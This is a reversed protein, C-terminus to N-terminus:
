KKNEQYALLSALGHALDIKPEWGLVKLARQNDPNRISASRPDTESITPHRNLLATSKEIIERLTILTNGSLNFIEYDKRGLAKIIGKAIDSVHIFRRATGLSGKVEISNQTRVENFLGEVAGMPVPRPGYVIGFRLVTVPCFGRQYTIYLLREGVIKTLAYESTIKALNVDSDETQIDDNETNGYVWESSAFIFQKVNRAQAARMLNLTGVVNVDFAAIPDKRCAQDSSVAALHVLADVNQPITQEVEPARIDIQHHGAEESPALDLGVFEIDRARCHQKLEKGIFSESGTIVIKM